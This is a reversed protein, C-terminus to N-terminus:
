SGGFGLRLDVWGVGCVGCGDGGCFLLLEAIVHARWGGIRRRELSMVQVGKADGGCSLDVGVLCAAEKASGARAVAFQEDEVTVVTVVHM